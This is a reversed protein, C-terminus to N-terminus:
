NSERTIRRYPCTKYLDCLHCISGVKRSTFEPGMGVIHSVSKLPVLFGSKNLMIGIKEADVYRVLEDQGSVDWGKLSGPSLSQGVGWNREAAEKEAIERSVDGVKRLFVLGASDLMYGAMFDDGNSLHGAKKELEPGITYVSIMVKKAKDLLSANEGIHLAGSVGTEESSISVVGNDRSVVDYLHYIITPQILGRAAGIASEADKLIAPNAEKGHMQFGLFEAATVSVSFKDVIQMTPGNWILLLSINSYAIEFHNKQGIKKNPETKLVLLNGVDM